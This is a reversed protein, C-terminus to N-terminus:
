TEFWCGNDLYERVFRRVLAPNGKGQLYRMTAALLEREDMGFGHNVKIANKLRQDEAEIWEATTPTGDDRPM